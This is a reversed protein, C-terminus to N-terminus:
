NDVHSQCHCHGEDEEEYQLVTQMVGVVVIVRM